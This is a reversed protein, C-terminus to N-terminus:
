NIWNIYDGGAQNTADTGNGSFTANTYDITASGSDSNSGYIGYTNNNNFSSGSLNSVNLTGSSHNRADLGIDNNDFVSNTASLELAGTGINYVTIGANGNENFQSNDVVVTSTGKSNHVTLGNGTNNNFESDTANIMIGGTSTNYSTFGFYANQNFQSGSVNATITGTNTNWMSFGFYQNNNFQSNNVNLIIEGSGENYALLGVEGDDNFTSNNVNVTVTGTGTGVSLLGFGDIGTVNVDNVNLTLSQDGYTIDGVVIGGTTGSSYQTITLDSLTTEGSTVFFGSYENEADVSIIPQQSASASATYDPSRGLISQGNYTYFAQNYTTDSNVYYTVDAGGQVYIRSDNPNQANATDLTNQTLPASNGYTGDGTGDSSVFYINDYQLGVGYGNLDQQDYTGAGTDIIGVHREVPDLLRDHINNSFVTSDQGLTVTLSVGVAYDNVQDYSNFVSLKLNKSIPQEYGATVGTINEVDDSAPPQYYYGGLYVRTRLGSLGAFSYGLEADLGNGVVASSQVQQDYQNHTGTEFFVQSSDGTDSLFEDAVAQSTETPFYANAHADWHANMWEVGPSLVWFNEGLSTREYDGFFYAGGIQNGFVKRYGGGPSVLWTDDSGYDGMFDGFIFGEKNGYIPLMVDGGVTKVNSVAAGSFLVRGSDPLLIESNTPNSKAEVLAAVCMLTLSFVTKKQFKISFM